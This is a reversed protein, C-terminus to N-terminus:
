MRVWSPRLGAGPTARGLLLITTHPITSSSVCLGLTNYANLNSTFLLCILWKTGKGPRPRSGSTVSPPHSYLRAGYVTSVEGTAACAEQSPSQHTATPDHDDGFDLNTASSQSAGRPDAGYQAPLVPGLPPESPWSTQRFSLAGWQQGRSSWSARPPGETGRLIM